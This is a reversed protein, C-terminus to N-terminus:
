SRTSRDLRSPRAHDDDIDVNERGLKAEILDIQSIGREDELSGRLQNTSLLM